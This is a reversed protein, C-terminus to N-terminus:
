MKKASWFLEYPLCYLNIQEIDTILINDQEISLLKLEVAKQFAKEVMPVPIGLDLSIRAAMKNNSIAFKQTEPYQYKLILFLQHIVFPTCDRTMHPHILTNAAQLRRTVSSVIKEVHPPLKKLNQALLEKTMVDVETDEIAEVSASRIDNTIIAMEGVIDGRKLIGLLM